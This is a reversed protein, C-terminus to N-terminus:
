GHGGDMGPPCSSRTAPAFTTWSRRPGWTPHRRRATLLLAAVDDAIAWPSTRPRRSRDALSRDGEVMFRTLWKYGVLRSIGYSACLDSMTGSGRLFEDIFRRRESMPTRESWPM